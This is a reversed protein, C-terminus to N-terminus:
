VKEETGELESDKRGVVGTFHSGAAGPQGVADGGAEGDLEGDVGAVGALALQAHLDRDTVRDRPDSEARM